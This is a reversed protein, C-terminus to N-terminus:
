LSVEVFFWNSFDPSENWSSFSAVQPNCNFLSKFYVNIRLLCRRAHTRVIEESPTNVRALPTCPKWYFLNIEVSIRVFCHFKWCFHSEWITIQGEM